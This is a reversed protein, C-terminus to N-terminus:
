TKIYFHMTNGLESGVKIFQSPLINAAVHYTALKIGSPLSCLKMLLSDILDTYEKEGTSITDDIKGATNKYEMMPNFLYFRNFSHFDIERFDRLIFHIRNLKAFSRVQEAWNHFSARLEVGTFECNTTLEGLFCLKGIGSGIDLVKADEEFCLFEIAKKCAYFSSFHQASHTTSLASFHDDFDEDLPFQGRKLLNFIDNIGLMDLDNIPKL